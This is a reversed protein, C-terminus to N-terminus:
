GLGRRVAVWRGLSKIGMSSQNTKRSLLPRVLTVPVDRLGKREGFCLVVPCSSEAIKVNSALAHAKM